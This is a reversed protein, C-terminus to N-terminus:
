HYKNNTTYESAIRWGVRNAWRPRHIADPFQALYLLSYSRFHVHIPFGEGREGEPTKVPNEGKRRRRRKIRMRLGRWEEGKERRQEVDSGEREGGNVRRGKM